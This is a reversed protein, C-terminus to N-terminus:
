LFGYHNTIVAAIASLGWLALLTGGLPGPRRYKEADRRLVAGSSVMLIAIGALGLLSKDRFAFLLTPTFFAIGHGLLVAYLPRLMSDTLLTRIWGEVRSDALPPAPTAASESRPPLDTPKNMALSAYSPRDPAACRAIPHYSRLM